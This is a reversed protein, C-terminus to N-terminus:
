RACGSPRVTAIDVLCSYVTPMLALVQQYDGPCIHCLCVSSKVPSPVKFLPSAIMPVDKVDHYPSADLGALCALTLRANQAFVFESCVSDKLVSLAMSGLDILSVNNHWPPNKLAVAIRPSSCLLTPHSPVSWLFLFRVRQCTVSEENVSLSRKIGM